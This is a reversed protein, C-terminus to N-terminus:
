PSQSIVRTIAVDVIGSYCCRTTKNKWRWELCLFVLWQVSGSIGYIWLLYDDAGRIASLYLALSYLIYLICLILCNKCRGILIWVFNGHSFSLNWTSSKWFKPQILILILVLNHILENSVKTLFIDKLSLTSLFRSMESWFELNWAFVRFRSM